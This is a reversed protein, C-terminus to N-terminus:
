SCQQELARMLINEFNKDLQPVEFRSRPKVESAPSPSSPNEPISHVESIDKSVTESDLNCRQSNLNASISQDYAAADTLGFSEKKIIPSSSKCVSQVSESSSQRSLSKSRSRSDSRIPEVTRYLVPNSIPKTAASSAQIYDLPFIDEFTPSLMTFGNSHATFVDLLADISTTVALSQLDHHSFFPLETVYDFLPITGEAHQSAFNGHIVNVFYDSQSTASDYKLLQLNLHFFFISNSLTDGIILFRKERNYVMSFSQAPIEESNISPLVIEQLVIGQSMDILHLHRNYNSGVLLLQTFPPISDKDGGELFQISCLNWDRPMTFKVTPKSLKLKTKLRSTGHFEAFTADCRLAWLLIDGHYDVVALASGDSSFTFDRVGTAVPISIAYDNGGSIDICQGSQADSLVYISVALGTCVALCNVYRRWWKAIPPLSQHVNRGALSLRFLYNLSASLVEQLNLTRFMPIWKGHSSLGYLLNM